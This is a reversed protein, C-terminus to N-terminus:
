QTQLLLGCRAMASIHGLLVVTLTLTATKMVVAMVLTCQSWTILALEPSPPKSVRLGLWGVASNLTWRHSSGVDLIVMIIIIVRGQEQYDNYWGVNHPLSHCCLYYPHASQTWPQIDCHRNHYIVAQLSIQDQNETTAHRDTTLYAVV